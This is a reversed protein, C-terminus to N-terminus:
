EERAEGLRAIGFDLVKLRRDRTLFLNEPKIDRHVGGKAFAATLVQLTRDAAWLVEDIPLRGGKRELRAELTEGELLEMVIYPLGDDAVGDEIVRVVGPHDIKNAVYAERTFRARVTKEAALEPHLIKVAAAANDPGIAMYVAGASGAGLMEVLHWKAALVRGVRGSSLAAVDLYDDDSM